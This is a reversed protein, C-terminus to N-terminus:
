RLINLQNLIKEEKPRMEKKDEEKIHDYGMLHYFGHVIMYSLEREFSHKYEKAQEKVKPVSIVIDGLVDEHNFLKNDIKNNLENREFMPFSLVDTAKDIRRYDNNIKKINEANTLTITVLLKSDVLKEEEFCKRLVKGIIEKYYEKEEIDKYIIEFM